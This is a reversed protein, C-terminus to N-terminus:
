TVSKEYTLTIPKADFFTKRGCTSHAGVEVYCLWYFTTCDFGNSINITSQYVEQGELDFCVTM